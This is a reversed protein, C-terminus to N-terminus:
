PQSQWGGGLAKVLAVQTQLRQGGLQVVKRESDLATTQATAVELYTILGARYRNNAIELTHRAASLAATQAQAQETLWHQASLQDEVDQFAALVTGRYNAVTAEYEAKAAALGALNKGGNFLPVTVSPGIAWVRSPWDFLSSASISQYGALGTLYVRPYFASKAVGIGANAARMRREAAAVDPRRELLTSPVSDPPLVTAAVDFTEAAISFGTAPQGCLTALAHLVNERQRALAPLEAETAKLLSDAQAVDLDSAIGGRRRNQTLELSRRYATISDAVLSQERELARLLFYDSAVEAQILLRVSALDDAAAALQARAAENERRIRGWLDIEWNLDLPAIFNNETYSNGNPQGNLPANESTRQRTFAPQASLQPLYDARAVRTLARAQSWQAVAAALSQNNTAALTELRNLETSSFVQWWAGRDQHAAPVAVQWNPANSVAGSFAAPLPQAPVPEPRRYDPGVSCGAVWIWISGLLLLGTKM